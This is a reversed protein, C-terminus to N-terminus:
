QIMGDKKAFSERVQIEDLLYAEIESSKKLYYEQPEQPATPNLEPYIKSTENDYISM